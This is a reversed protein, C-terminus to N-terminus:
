VPLTFKSGDIVFVKPMYECMTQADRKFVSWEEKTIPYPQEKVFPHAGEKFKIGIAMKPKVIGAEKAIKLMKAEFDDYSGDTMSGLKAVANQELEKVTWLYKPGFYQIGEPLGTAPNM